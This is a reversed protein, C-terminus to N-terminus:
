QVLFVFLNASAIALLGMKTVRLLNNDMLLLVERDQKGSFGFILVIARFNPLPQSWLSVQNDCTLPSQAGYCIFM